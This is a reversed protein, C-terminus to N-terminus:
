HVSGVGDHARDGAVARASRDCSAILKTPIPSSPNQAALQEFERRADAIAGADYALMGAILHSRASAIADATKQDIVRFQAPPDPPAPAVVRRGDITAAVQWTYTRGRPLDAPPTWDNTGDTITVQVKANAPARWRFQPRTDVVAIGFPWMAAIENTKMATGRLPRPAATILSPPPALDPNALLSAVRTAIHPETTVGHLAGSRDVGIINAGDRLAIALRPVHVFSTPTAPPASRPVFVIFGIVIAAAAAISAILAPRVRRQKAVFGRLDGVEARCTACNALHAEAARKADADLHGDIYPVLEKEFDLHENSALQQRLSAVRNEM